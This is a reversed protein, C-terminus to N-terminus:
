FISKLSLPQLSPERTLLMPEELPSTNLEWCGWLLESGDTIGTGPSRIDEEAERSM